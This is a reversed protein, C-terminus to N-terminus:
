YRMTFFNDLLVTCFFPFLVCISYVLSGILITFQDSSSLKGYPGWNASDKYLYHNETNVLGGITLDMYMEAFFIIFLTRYAAKIKLCGLVRKVRHDFDFVKLIKYLAQTMLFLGLVVAPGGIM